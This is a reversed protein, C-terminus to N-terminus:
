RVYREAEQPHCVGARLPRSPPTIIGERLMYEMLYSVIEKLPPDAGDSGSPKRTARYYDNNYRKQQMAAIKEHSRRFFDLLPYLLNDPTCRRKLEVVFDAIDYYVFTYGYESTILRTIDMMNYHSDATVHFTRAATDRQKFISVINNAAIEGPLFSIQNAANVAIGHNIMFSLLRIVIDDRSAVGGSSATIFSPRYVRADLGQREAGFVLQEAVWKTQAYGFDLNLMEENNDTELLEGKATWGFIVTSSIFHFEKRTGTASFRLLERTGEVNHPRLADYNLVYNVLAANHIVAQVRTTLSQWLSAQLGLNHHAIDGCVVHVRKKLEEDLAPTWLCAGRLGERIRDMGHDTNLARTLVYYVYPTQRLLSSLLFPGFFGTPGTLLVRTLPEEANQIDIRGISWRADYRMCDRQLEEHEQRLKKLVTQLAAVRGQSVEELGNFLSFLEAITLQQLLRADIESLLDTAGHETLLL